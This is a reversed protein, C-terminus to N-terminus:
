QPGWYSYFKVPYKTLHMPSTTADDRSCKGLLISANIIRPWAVVIAGHSHTRGMRWMVVDGPDPPGTIERLFQEILGLYMEKSRHLHWQMAYPEVHFDQILGAGVYIAKLLQGCDVGVGKKHAEHHFPTGVWTEAEAILAQRLFEQHTGM